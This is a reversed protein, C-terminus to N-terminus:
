IAEDVGHSSLAAAVPAFSRRHLACPGLQALAQRHQSTGYGKHRAFGYEPFQQDSEVMLSDRTVKAIISAAAVSLSKADAKAQSTQPREDEPLLMYDLLLHLPQPELKELARNMALRTAPLLGLRDVEINSASGVALGLAASQIASFARQRASPTLVKSDQVGQLTRALGSERLPLAVAAAVVPGALAGRGAEDIGAIIEFGGALLSLELQLSPGNAGVVM